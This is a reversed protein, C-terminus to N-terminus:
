TPTNLIYIIITDEKYLHPWFHDPYLFRLHFVYGLSLNNWSNNNMRKMYVKKEKGAEHLKELM